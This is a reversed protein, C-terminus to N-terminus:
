ASRNKALLQRVSDILGDAIREPNVKFRGEAIAQKIESVRKTDVVPDASVSAQIEQLRSSLPSLDVEAGAPTAARPTAGAVSRSRGGNTASGVPSVTSSIKM